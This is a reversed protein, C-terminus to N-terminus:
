VHLGNSALRSVVQGRPQVQKWLLGDTDGRAIKDIHRGTAEKASDQQHSVQRFSGDPHLFKKKMMHPAVHRWRLETGADVHDTSGGSCESCDQVSLAKLRQRFTLGTRREVLRTADRFTLIKVVADDLVSYM